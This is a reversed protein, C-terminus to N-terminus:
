LDVISISMCQQLREGFTEDLINAGTYRDAVPQPDSVTTYISRCQPQLGAAVPRSTSQIGRMLRTRYWRQSEGRSVM